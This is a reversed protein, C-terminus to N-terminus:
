SSATIAIRYSGEVPDHDLPTRLQRSLGNLVRDFRSDLRAQLEKSNRLAASAVTLHAIGPEEARRVSIRVVASPESLMALEVLETILFAVPVAVDQTVYLNDSDVQIIFHSSGDPATARLSASLESLLSRIGVGRHEELEAYHNRHVVSLADVRRQISTYADTAESTAASRAHLNILSAIIQLNNKVRHHVERTLRQQRELGQAMEAEHTAVEESIARFTNGLDEIERAPTRIRKLPELVEGPQYAAVARQLQVLPRILLRNVVLWGIGAAAFWMFLPLFTSLTRAITVPPDHVLMVLMLAGPELRATVSKTAQATGGPLSGGVRLTRNGQRILIERNQLATDPDTIRGLHDRDYFALAVLRGNASTTRVVLTRDDDLIEAATASFHQNAPVRALIPSASGCRKRGQRDYIAFRTDPASRAQLFTEARLCLEPDGHGQSLTNVTLRLAARDASLEATLRRASQGAAIRLLAAKEQDATNIAQLSAALALLGLPLLALTLILFMKVGTSRTFTRRAAAVLPVPSVLPGTAAGAEPTM